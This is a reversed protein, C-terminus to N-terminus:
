TILDHSWTMHSVLTLLLTPGTLPPPTVVFYCYPIQIIDVGVGNGREISTAITSDTYCSHKTTVATVCDGGRGVCCCCTCCSVISDTNDRGYQTEKLTGPGTDPKDAM